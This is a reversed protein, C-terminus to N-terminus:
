EIDIYTTQVHEFAQLLTSLDPLPAPELWPVTGAYSHGIGGQLFLQPELTPLKPSLLHHNSRTVPKQPKELVQTHNLCPSPHIQNKHISRLRKTHNLCVFFLWLHTAFAASIDLLSIELLM